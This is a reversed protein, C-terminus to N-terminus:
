VLMCPRRTLGDSALSYTIPSKQGAINYADIIFIQFDVKKNKYCGYKVKYYFSVSM